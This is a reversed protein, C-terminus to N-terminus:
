KARRVDFISDVKKIVKQAKQLRELSEINIELDIVCEKDQTQRASISAVKIKESALENLLDSVVGKRDNARVRLKANYSSKAKEKWKVNILRESAILTHANTCDAAHVTVGKGFSIYGIIQDGPIPNCCKALKVLCNDIGEVEVGISQSRVRQSNSIREKVEEIKEKDLKEKDEKNSTKKYEEALRNVVKVPSMSAFGVNEYCENLDNFNCRKLMAEVIKPDLLLEKDIGVKRLEKEIIEKGKAINEDKDQRKLFATIKNKASTTKIFKVWDRSPGKSNASTIIDVVDTNQLKYSLPVIKGNIKAGTMKHGIHEHIMYAFDVPTSGMPLSKIEGKPTFVFVEDGFLEYKMTKLFDTKDGIEKQLEITQRIFTLEKDSKSMKNKGEKYLFHAAIGYDAVKHMDWTRIQVEFPRGGEGFVTTHLSQYMNTKPVSIYDKFRGPMPKYMEHIIGLVLYCDKVSNVIVRIALLDYIEDLSKNGNKMKKYISYFHKPRGLIKGEINMENLKGEILNMQHNIYKEREEKKQDIAKKLWNYDAEYMARFSIDELESKIQSMGLRHAIPAYIELTDKAKHLRTEKDMDKINRMDELRDALKIIVVRIDKAIAMFMKRLNEPDASKNNYNLLYLKSTDQVLSAIDEGFEKKIELTSTDVYKPMEHLLAAIVLNIDLNLEILIKATEVCHDIVPKNIKTVKDKYALSALNYAKEIVEKSYEIENKDLLEIIEEM